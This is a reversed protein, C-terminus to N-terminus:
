LDCVKIGRSLIKWSGLLFYDGVAVADRCVVVVASFADATAVVDGVVGGVVVVVGGGVIVSM